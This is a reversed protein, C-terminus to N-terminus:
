ALAYLTLVNLLATALLGPWAIYKFVSSLHVM